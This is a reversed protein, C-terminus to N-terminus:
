ASPGGRLPRIESAARYSAVYGKSTPSGRITRDVRGISSDREDRSATLRQTIPASKSGCASGSAARAEAQWCDPTPAEVQEQQPLQRTESDPARQRQQQEVVGLDCSYARGTELRPQQAALATCCDLREATLPAEGTFFASVPTQRHPLTGAGAGGAGSERVAASSSMVSGPLAGV